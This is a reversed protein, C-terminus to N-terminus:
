GKLHRYVGPAPHVFAPMLVFGLETVKQEKRSSHHRGHDIVTCVCPLIFDIQQIACVKRTSAESM